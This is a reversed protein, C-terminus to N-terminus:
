LINERRLEQNFLYLITDYNKASDTVKASFTLASKKFANIDNILEGISSELVTQIMFQQAILPYSEGPLQSLVQKLLGGIRLDNATSEALEAGFHSFELAQNYNSIARLTRGAIDKQRSTHGRGGVRTVSLATSIAPRLGDRFVQKDLIWQGDTISIINTPLYATIDGGSALVLPLSTLTKHNRNLRGARELLSSHIYFIDGPYSDRGPNVGSVLSIERYVQAHTTLDDYILVVDKDKQQWFYEGIACAVYPALYSTVLSDFITSVVVITNDIAGNKELTAVLEDIDSQRKAILVYVTITDTHKQNIALQTALSTKGVKMDGIIALRQGKVIPFLSDIMSVGTHLLENLMQREHIAPAKNFVPWEQQFKLPGKGDLPVGNPTIVRGILSDGVLTVLTEKYLVVVDGINPLAEGMYLISVHDKNVSRVYGQTGDEFLVLSQVSIPHLGRIRVFFKNVAIVEGVPRGSAILEQFQNVSLESM